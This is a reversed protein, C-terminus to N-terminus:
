MDGKEFFEGRVNRITSAVKFGFDLEPRQKPDCSFQRCIHPRVEYISCKESKKSEDLFPCTMDIVPEAVPALHRREKIKHKKIYRRIIKVEEDTMPLLNSCCGGCGTCKGNDTLNYTGNRFERQMEALTSTRM